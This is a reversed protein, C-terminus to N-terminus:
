EIPREDIRGALRAVQIELRKVDRTISLRCMELWYWIKIATVLGACLFSALGWLVTSRVDPARLCQIASFVAGVFLLFNLVAGGIAVRRHRGRFTQVLLESLTPDDLDRLQDKGEQELARRIINDTDDDTNAMM